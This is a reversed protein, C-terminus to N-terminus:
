RTTGALILRPSSAGYLAGDSSGFLHSIRLGARETLGILEPLGYMRVSETYVRVHEGRRLTLTKIIRNREADIRREQTLQIDGIRREDHPVLTRIVWDRNLYDIIWGGGPRLSTRIARLAALNEEDSEFYGFSTFFNVVVDFGGPEVVNRMDCELFRVSVGAKDAEKRAEALLEGSLDVGVVRYGRRALEVAHRGAGCCLDLVRAGVSPNLVREVLDIQEIAEAKDRHSYVELYDRGFWEAYWPQARHLPRDQV